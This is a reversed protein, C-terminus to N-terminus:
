LMSLLQIRYLTSELEKQLQELLVQMEDWRVEHISSSKDMSKWFRLIYLTYAATVLLWEWFLSIIYGVFMADSRRGSRM